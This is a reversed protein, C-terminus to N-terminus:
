IIISAQIGLPDQNISVADANTLVALDTATFATPDAGTLLPAQVPCLLVSIVGESSCSTAFARCALDVPAACVGWVRRARWVKMICWMSFHARCRALSPADADCTFDGQSVQMMDLDALLLLSPPFPLSPKVLVGLLSAVRWEM